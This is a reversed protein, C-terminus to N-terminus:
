SCFKTLDWIRLLEILYFPFCSAFAVTGSETPTECTIVVDPKQNVLQQRNPASLGLGDRVLEMAATADAATPFHSLTM